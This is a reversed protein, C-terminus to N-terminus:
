FNMKSLIEMQMFGLCKQGKELLAFLWLRLSVCNQKTKKGRQVNVTKSTALLMVTWFPCKSFLSLQVDYRVNLCVTWDAEGSQLKDWQLLQMFLWNLISIQKDAANFIVKHERSWCWSGRTASIYCFQQNCLCMVVKPHQALKVGVIISLLWRNLATSEFLLLIKNEM